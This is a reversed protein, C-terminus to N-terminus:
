IAAAIASPAAARAASHEATAAASAPPGHRAKGVAHAAFGLAVCLVVVLVFSAFAVSCGILFTSLWRPLHLAAVAEADEVTTTGDTLGSYQLMAIASSCSPFTVAAWAPNFGTRRIVVRRQWLAYATMLVVSVSCLYLLHTVTEASPMWTLTSSPVAGNRRMVGWALANLSCPAQMMAVSISTAVTEPQRLVRWVQPPVLLVQLTVAMFLSGQVIWAEAGCQAGVIATVACNVTPPNWFPEPLVRLRWCRSLFWSILMLQAAAYVYTAVRVVADADTSVVPAVVRAVVFLSAMELAGYASCSSPVCLERKVLQPQLVMRVLYLALLLSAAAMHVAASTRLAVWLWSSSTPLVARQLELCISASGCLGLSVGCSAPPLVAELRAARSARM